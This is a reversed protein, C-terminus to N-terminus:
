ALVINLFHVKKERSDICDIDAFVNVFLCDERQRKHISLSINQPCSPRYENCQLIFNKDDFSRKALTKAFRLSGVPSEAYPIGQFVYAQLGSKTKYRYGEIKGISLEIIPGGDINQACLLKIILTILTLSFHLM